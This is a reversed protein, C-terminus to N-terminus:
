PTDKEQDLRDRQLRDFKLVVTYKWSTNNSYPPDEAPAPVRSIVGQCLRLPFSSKSGLGLATHPAPHPEPASVDAGM